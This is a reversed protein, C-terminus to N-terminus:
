AGVERFGGPVNVLRRVIEGAVDGRHVVLEAVAFTHGAPCTCPKPDPDPPVLRLPTTTDKAHRM